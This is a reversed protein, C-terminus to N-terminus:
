SMNVGCADTVKEGAPPTYLPSYSGYTGFSTEHFRPVGTTKSKNDWGEKSKDLPNTKFPYFKVHGDIFLLNGGGNHYEALKDTSEGDSKIGNPYLTTDNPDGAAFFFGDNAKEEDVILVVETPSKVRVENMLGVACNMSYTLLKADKDKNSPCSYIQASKIYPYLAGKELNAKNCDAPACGAPEPEQTSLNALAAGNTGSVWQAGNAWKTFAGTGPFRGGADQVYQQFGLGLQKMNNSCVKTRGSERAKSFVPFSIAALLAIVAIVVLMEVLTFGRRARSALSFNNM